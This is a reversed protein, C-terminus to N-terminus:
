NSNYVIKINKLNFIIKVLKKILSLVEPGGIPLASHELDDM